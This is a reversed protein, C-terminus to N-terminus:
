TLFYEIKKLRFKVRTVVGTLGMGGCTPRLVLDGNERGACPLVANSALRLM